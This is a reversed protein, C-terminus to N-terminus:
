EQTHEVIKVRHAKNGLRKDVANLVPDSPRVLQFHTVQQGNELAYRVFAVMDARLVQERHEQVSGYGVSGEHSRLVLDGGAHKGFLVDKVHLVIDVATHQDPDQDTRVTTVVGRVVLDAYDARHQTEDAWQQRWSDQLMEPKDLMDVGDPFLAAEQTTLPSTAHPGATSPGRCALSCAILAGLLASPVFRSAPTLRGFPM